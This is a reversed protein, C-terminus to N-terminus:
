LDLSVVDIDVDPADEGGLAALVRERVCIWMFCECAGGCECMIHAFRKPHFM